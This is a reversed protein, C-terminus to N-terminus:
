RWEINDDLTLTPAGNRVTNDCTVHVSSGDHPLTFCTWLTRSATWLTCTRGVSQSPLVPHMVTSIGPLNWSASHGDVFIENPAVNNESLAGGQGDDLLTMLPM